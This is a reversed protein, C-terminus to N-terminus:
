GKNDDIKLSNDHKIDMMWVVLYRGFPTDYVKHRSFYDVGDTVAMARQGVEDIDELFVVDIEKDIDAGMGMGTVLGGVVLGVEALLKALVIDAVDKHTIGEAATGLVGRAVGISGDVVVDDSFFREVLFADATELVSVALFEADGEHASFGFRFVTVTEVEDAVGEMVEVDGELMDILGIVEAGVLFDESAEVLEGCGLGIVKDVIIEIHGWWGGAVNGFEIIMEDSIKIFENIVIGIVGGLINKIEHGGVEGGDGDGIAGTVEVGGLFQEFLDETVIIEAGKLGFDDVVNEITM